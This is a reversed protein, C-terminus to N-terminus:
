KSAFKITLGAKVTLGPNPEVDLFQTYQKNFLNTITMDGSVRDSYAYSAFLDVLGYAASPLPETGDSGAAVAVNKPSAGVLTLRGGVTLANDELFRFGLTTSMRYPAVTALSMGDDLNKGDIASGALSLFGRGWDYAGEVEVGQVRAKSVNIYQFSNIPFCLFPEAGCLSTPAGPIFPVHYPSGVPEIDIFNDVLNTFVTAKGRFSDGAKLVDDYRLNVGAELNHATEPLLNPPLINFSPFPHVGEILTETVTPARYGEAYTSYFELGRVPTVGITLKPSIHQGSSSVDGGSLQYDDFRVAGLVRLWGGYSMEDQVFAGSLNRRGTPTLAAIYGGADDFTHVRNLAGDGGITLAHNVPGTGFRSTNHLDFGYTDIKDSLPDGATVGLASYVGLADPAVFTQRNQTTSYYIKSDFDILPTDPPRFAYGLTYTETTVDNNFRAGATSTGNNTFQYNQTLATVSIQQGDSPRVNFKFLGGLLKNGTDQITDGAGDRYASTGRFTFQGFIDAATGIRAGASTSTVVGAGNAGAVVHEMAGYNEDPKLLDNIDRTRFSVVGGIAGSGYINSVPGRVVDAQGVFEPDLYFTGNANHGSIQYDQRAGDVLVSVRGFDQMGRINISQGPDNPTVQSAVGPVNQLMESISGPQQHQIQKGTVVSAGAMTDVVSEDTKTATVTVTDLNVDAGTTADRAPPSAAPVGVQQARTECSAFCLALATLVAPSSVLLSVRRVSKM